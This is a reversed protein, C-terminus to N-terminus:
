CTTNLGPRDGLGLLDLPLNDLTEGAQKKDTNKNNGAQTIPKGPQDHWEHQTPNGVSENHQAKKNNEQGELFIGIGTCRNFNRIFLAHNGGPRVAQDPM